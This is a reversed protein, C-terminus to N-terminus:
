GALMMVVARIRSHSSPASVEVIYWDEEHLPLRAAAALSGTPQQTSLDPWVFLAVCGDFVAQRGASVVSPDRSTGENSPVLSQYVSVTEFRGVPLVGDDILKTALSVAAVPYRLMRDHPTSDAPDARACYRSLPGIM